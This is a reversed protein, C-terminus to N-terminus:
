AFNTLRFYFLMSCDLVVPRPECHFNCFYFGDGVAVHRLNVGTSDAPRPHSNVGVRASIAQSFRKRRGVAVFATMRM